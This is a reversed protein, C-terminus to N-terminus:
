KELAYIKIPRFFLTQNDEDFVKKDIEDRVKQPLPKPQTSDIALMEVLSLVQLANLSPCLAMITDWNTFSDRDVFLLIAGEDMPSFNKYAPSFVQNREQAFWDDLLGLRTKITFANTPVCISPTQILYQFLYANLNFTITSFLQKVVADPLGFTLVWDRLDTLTSLITHTMFKGRENGSDVVTEEIRNADQAPM